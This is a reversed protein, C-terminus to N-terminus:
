VMICECDCEDKEDDDTDEEGIEKMYFSSDIIAVWRLIISLKKTITAQDYESIQSLDYGKLSAAITDNVNELAEITKTARQLFTYNKLAAETGDDVSEDVYYQGMNLMHKAIDKLQLIVTNTQKLFYYSVSPDDTNGCGCGGEGNHHNKCPGHGLLIIDLDDDSTVDDPETIDDGIGIIGAELICNMRNIQKIVTDLRDDTTVTDSEMGEYDDDAELAEIARISSLYIKRKDSKGTTSCDLGIYSQVVDESYNGVYPTCDDSISSDIYTLYGDAVDFGGPTLYTVAYRNGIELDVYYDDKSNAMWIKIRLTTIKKATVSVVNPMSSPRVVATCTGSSDTTGMSEPESYGVGDGHRNAIMRPPFGRLVPAVHHCITNYYPPKHQDICYTNGYMYHGDVIYPGM